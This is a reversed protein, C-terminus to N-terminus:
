AYRFRGSLPLVEMPFIPFDDTVALFCLKPTKFPKIIDLLDKVNACPWCIKGAVILRDSDVTRPLRGLAVAKGIPKDYAILGTILILCTLYDIDDTMPVAFICQTRLASSRTVSGLQKCTAEKRIFKTVGMTM